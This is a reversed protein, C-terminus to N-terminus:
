EVSKLMLEYAAKEIEAAQDLIAGTQSRRDNDGALYDIVVDAFAAILRGSELFKEGSRIMAPNNYESGLEILVESLRERAAMHLVEDPADVGILKNPMTPVTGVFMAINNLCKRYDDEELEEQWLPFEEAFKKFGRYGLSSIPPNLFREAKKRLAKWVITRKDNPQEMRVACISDSKSVPTAEIKLARELNGYPLVQM